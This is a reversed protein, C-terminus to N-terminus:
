KEIVELFLHHPTVGTFIGLGNKINTPPEKISLTSSGLTEYLAAYEANLRYVIIEYTGFIQLERRSNISYFDMIDPETRFFRDPRIDSNAFQEFLDNVYDPDEEINKVIVYYYDNNSNTWTIDVVEEGQSGGPFGGGPFGGSFEIRELAVTEKSLHIDIPAQVYTQASIEKGDYDFKMSYVTEPKVIYNLNRYYGEGISELVVDQHGDNITINLGDIYELNGEGSYSITKTIRISDIAQGSFLYGAVVVKQDTAEILGIGEDCSSFLMMSAIYIIYLYRM